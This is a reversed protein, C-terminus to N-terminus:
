PAFAFKINSITYGSDGAHIGLLFNVKTSAGLAAKLATLNDATKNTGTGSVQGDTYIDYDWQQSGVPISASDPTAGGPVDAATRGLVASSGELGLYGSFADKSAALYLKKYTADGSVFTYTATVGILKALDFAGIDVEFYVYNNGYGASSTTYGKKDGSIAANAAAQTKPTITQSVGFVTIAEGFATIAEPETFTITFPKAFDEGPAKGDKITATVTVSGKATGTISYEKADAEGAEAITTVGAGPTTVSWVTTKNTAFPPVVAGALIVKEGVEASTTDFTIDTVADFVATTPRFGAVTLTYIEIEVSKAKCNLRIGQQANEKKASLKTVDEATLEFDESFDGEFKVDGLATANSGPTIDLMWATGSNVKGSIAIKDGEYFKFGGYLLDIGAGWDHTGTNIKLGLKGGNDIVTLDMEAGANTLWTANKGFFSTGGVEGKGTDGAKFGEAKLFVDLDFVDDKWALEGEDDDDDGGGGGPCGMMLLGFVVLVTAPLFWWKQKM